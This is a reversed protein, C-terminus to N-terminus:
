AAAAHRGAGELDGRQGPLQVARDAAHAQVRARGPRDEPGREDGGPRDPGVLLAEARDGLAPRPLDQRGADRRSRVLRGATAVTARRRGAASSRDNAPTRTGSYAPTAARTARERASRTPSICTCKQISSPSDTPMPECAIESMGPM